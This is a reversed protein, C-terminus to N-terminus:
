RRSSCLARLRLSGAQDSHALTGSDSFLRPTSLEEGPIRQQLSSSPALHNRLIPARSLCRRPGSPGTVM